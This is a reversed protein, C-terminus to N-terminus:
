KVLMVSQMDLLATKTPVKLTFDQTAPAGDAVKVKATQTGLKEHWIEIDYEGAPLGKIEFKGDTNTVSFYPHDMVAVYGAMWPHVDCKVKFPTAETESFKQDIQKKFAPMAVNFEKNTKPLGHVNHLTGDSNLIKVQQDKMTAIVHPVYMCGKQDITVPDAPTEYTKGEPLGSTVKVFINAVTQGEGLVLSEASVPGTHKSACKPDADMKIKKLNPPTGEFKITGTISGEAMVQSVFGFAMVATLLMTRLKM